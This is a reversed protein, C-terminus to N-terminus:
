PFWQSGILVVSFRHSGVSFRHSGSLVQSFWQSGVSFGGQPFWQSGIPVVSFRHSSSLFWQSGILVVSFWQSGCQPFGILVVSFRHSGSLFWQPGIPVVSFRHSGSPVRHSDGLVQSFWLSGSLVWLSGCVQSLGQSGSLFGVLWAAKSFWLFLNESLFIASKFRQARRTEEPMEGREEAKVRRINYGLRGIQNTKTPTAKSLQKLDAAFEKERRRQLKRRGRILHNEIIQM